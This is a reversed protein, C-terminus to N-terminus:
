EKGGAILLLSVAKRNKYERALKLATKGTPTRLNVDMQRSELLAELLYCNPDGTAVHLLSEGLHNKFHIDAGFKILLKAMQESQVGVLVSQRLKGAKPENASKVLTSDASLLLSVMEIDDNEIAEELPSSRTDTSFFNPSVGFDLLAKVPAQAGSGVATILCASFSEKRWFYNSFTKKLFQNHLLANFRDPVWAVTECVRVANEQSLTPWTDKNMRVFETFHPDTSNLVLADLNERKNKFRIQSECHWSIIISGSIALSIAFRVVRDQMKLVM